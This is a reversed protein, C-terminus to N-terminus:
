WQSFSKSQCWSIRGEAEVEVQSGLSLACVWAPPRSMKCRIRGTKSRSKEPNRFKSTLILRKTRTRLSTPGAVMAM